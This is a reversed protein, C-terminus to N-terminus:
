HLSVRSASTPVTDKACQSEQLCLLSRRQPSIHAVALCEERLLYFLCPHPTRSCRDAAQHASCFRGYGTLAWSTSLTRNGQTPM